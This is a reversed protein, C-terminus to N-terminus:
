PADILSQPDVVPAPMAGYTLQPVAEPPELAAAVHGFQQALASTAPRTDRDAVLTLTGSTEKITLFALAKRIREAEQAKGGRPIDATAMRVLKEEIETITKLKRPRVEDLDLQFDSLAVIEQAIQAEDARWKRRGLADVIKYGPVQQGHIAAALLFNDVADLWAKIQPAAAKIAVLKDFPVEKPHPPQWTQLDKLHAFNQHMSTIAAEERAPCDHECPCWRCHPGPILPADPKKGERLAADVEAAFEVLDVSTVTWERVPGLPHFCRPQIVVLVAEVLDRDWLASTAYGLLQKNKYVEVPVGEGFKFDIIWAKCLAPSYLLVDLTGGCEERKVVDQPFWVRGEYRIQIDPAIARVRVIYDLVFEVAHIIEPSNTFREPKAPVGDVMADICFELIEHAKDGAEAYQSRRREEFREAYNPQGLCITWRHAGSM